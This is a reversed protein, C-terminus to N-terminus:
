RRFMYGDKSRVWILHEEKNKVQFVRKDLDSRGTYPEEFARLVRNDASVLVSSRGDTLVINGEALSMSSLAQENQYVQGPHKPFRHLLEGQWNYLLAVGNTDRAGFLRDAAIIQVNLYRMPLVLRGASDMIGQPTRLKGAMETIEQLSMALLKETEKKSLRENVVFYDLKKEQPLKGCALNKLDFLTEGKENVVLQVYEKPDDPNVLTILNRSQLQAHGQLLGFPTLQNGKEDFYASLVRDRVKPFVRGMQMTTLGKEFGKDRIFDVEFAAQPPQNVRHVRLPQEAVKGAKYVVGAPLELVLYPSLPRYLVGTKPPMAWTGDASLVGCADYELTKPGYEQIEGGVVVEQKPTTSPPEAPPKPTAPKHKVKIRMVTVLGMETDESVAVFGPPVLPRMRDDFVLTEKKNSKSRSFVVLGGKPTHLQRLLQWEKLSDPMTIRTGDSLIAKVPGNGSIRKIGIVPDLFVSPELRGSEPVKEGKRNYAMWRGNAQEGWFLTDNRFVEAKISLFQVPVLTEGKSNIVGFLTDKKVRFYHPVLRMIEDFGTPHLSHGDRDFLGYQYKGEVLTSIQFVFPDTEVIKGNDIGTFRAIENLELDYFAWYGSFQVLFHPIPITAPVGIGQVTEPLMPKGGADLLNSRPHSGGPGYENVLLWRKGTVPQISQATIPRVIKGSYDMLGFRQDKEVILLDGGFPTINRYVTDLIINGDADILGAIGSKGHNYRPGTVMFFGARGSPQIDTWVFPTRLKGSRDGIAYQNPAEALIFHGADAVRGAAFDRPFIEKLDTDVFNMTGPTKWVEMAGHTFRFPGLYEREPSYYNTFWDRSNNRVLHLYTKGTNKRLDYLMFDRGKPLGILHGISDLKKGYVNYDQVGVVVDKPNDVAMRLGSRLLLVAKGATLPPEGPQLLAREVDPNNLVTFIKAAPMIEHIGQYRPEILVKGEETAYGYRAKGSPSTSGYYPILAQASSHLAGAALFLATFLLNQM